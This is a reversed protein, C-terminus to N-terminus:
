FLEKFCILKQRNEMSKWCRSGMFYCFLKEFCMTKKRNDISKWAFTWKRNIKWENRHNKNIKEFKLTTVLYLKFFIIVNRYEVLRSDSKYAHKEHLVDRFIWCKRRWSGSVDIFSNKLFLTKTSKWRIELM